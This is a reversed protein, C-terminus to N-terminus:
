AYTATPQQRCLSLLSASGAELRGAPLEVDLKFEADLRAASGPAGPRSHGIGPRHGVPRRLVCPDPHITREHRAENGGELAESRRSTGPSGASRFAGPATIPPACPSHARLTDGLAGAYGSSQTGVSRPSSRHDAAPQVGPPRSAVGLELPRARTTVPNGEGNGPCNRCGTGHRDGYAPSAM